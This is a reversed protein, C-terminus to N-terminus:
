FVGDNNIQTKVAAEKCAQMLSALNYYILEPSGIKTSYFRNQSVIQLITELVKQRTFDWKQVSELKELKAILNKAYRRQNADSGNVIGGNFRKILEMCENINKDGYSAKAENIVTLNNINKNEIEKEKDKEIEKETERLNGNPKEQTDKLIGKPEKLNKFTKKPRGGKKWNSVSAEVDKRCGDLDFKKAKFISYVLVNDQSPEIGYLQYNVYALLVLGQTQEDLHKLSDLMEEHIRALM